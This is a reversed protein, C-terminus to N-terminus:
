LPAFLSSQRFARPGPFGSPCGARRRRCSKSMSHSPHQESASLRSFKAQLEPRSAQPKERLAHQIKCIFTGPHTGCLRLHFGFTTTRPFDEFFRFFNKDAADVAGDAGETGDATLGQNDFLSPALIEVIGVAVLQEVVDAGPAGHEEAVRMGRNGRRNGVLRQA